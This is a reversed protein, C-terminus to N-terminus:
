AIRALLGLAFPLSAVGLLTSVTVLGAVFAGDYGMRSTLV